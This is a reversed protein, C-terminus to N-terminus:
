FAVSLSITTEDISRAATYSCNSCDSDSINITMGGMSYSMAISDWTQNRGEGGSVRRGEGAGKLSEVRNYSLSLDDSVAYSVGLYQNRYTTNGLGQESVGGLQAGVTVPGFAYKLYATAEEQDQQDGAAKLDYNLVAYGIGASLGEVGPINGTLTIEHGDKNTYIANQGSTAQDGTADGSGHQPYYMYDFKVGSGALDSLTYRVGYTGDSGNVDQISGVQNTAEHFANPTVDDIASIPGGTSTMALTGGGLINGFVLESDSHALADTTTNKYAVTVGNDLETSGTITLDNAQGLPNGDVQYGSGRTYTVEMSGTVSVAGAYASTMALTGALASLGIKKINTM